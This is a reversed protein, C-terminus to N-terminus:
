SIGSLFLFSAYYIGSVYVSGPFYSGVFNGGFVRDYFCYQYHHQYRSVIFLCFCRIGANGLCLAGSDFEFTFLWLFFAIGYVSYSM